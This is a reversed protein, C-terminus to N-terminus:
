ITALDFLRPSQNLPLSDTNAFGLDCGQNEFEFLYESNKPENAPVRSLTYGAFCYSIYFMLM